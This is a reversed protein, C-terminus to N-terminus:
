GAPQARTVLDTILTNADPTGLGTSFDWGHTAPYYLNGGLTVDHFAASGTNSGVMAYLVPNVFGLPKQGKAVLSQNALTILGAWLPSAASTGGIITWCNSRCGGSSDYIAYGTLPDSDAAVDPVERMGDSYPNNTGPGAQWPPLTYNMSVGGGGGTGELPAEWGAERGYGGSTNLFLATGGVATVYPSTAPASASLTHNSPDFATCGYAGSDGSSVFVSMGQADAQQFASDLSAFFSPGPEDFLSQGGSPVSEPHILYQECIGLSISVVHARDDSVIQSFTNAMGQLTGGGEYALLRTQPAIAHIVEIDLTTESVDTARAAGPGVKIVQVPPATIGFGQDYANIDAQKFTDIEALAITQGSGTLGAQILPSLDYAAALDAPAFGNDTPSGARPARPGKPQRPARIVTPHVVVRDDLGLVGVVLGRLASPLRPASTASYFASGDRARYNELQVGLLQELQGVTASARLQGASPQGSVSIGDARLVSEVQTQTAATPGFQRAFEGPTLYHRYQPSHPDAIAALTADLRAPMQGALVLSFDLRQGPATAGMDVVFPTTTRSAEHAALSTGAALLAGSGILLAFLFIAPLAVRWSRRMHADRKFM